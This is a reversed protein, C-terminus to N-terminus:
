SERSRSSSGANSTAGAAAARSTSSSCRRSIAGGHRGPRVRAERAPGPDRGRLRRARRHGVPPVHLDRPARRTDGPGTAEVRGRSLVRAIRPWGYADNGPPLDSKFPQLVRQEIAFSKMVFTFGLRHLGATVPLTVRLREQASATASGQDRNSLADDELGGLTRAICPSATSCSRSSSRRRFARSGACPARPPRGCSPGSSTSARRRSLLARRRARRAHRAASGRDLPEAVSRARARLAGHAARRDHRRRGRGLRAIGVTLYRELLLPSTKLVDSVNDFGHSSSDAPLLSEVDVTM